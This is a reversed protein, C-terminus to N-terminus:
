HEGIVVLTCTCYLVRQLSGWESVRGTWVEWVELCFLRFYDGRADKM